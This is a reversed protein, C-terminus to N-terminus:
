GNLTTTLEGLDEPHIFYEDSDDKEVTFETNEVRIFEEDLCGDSEDLEKGNIEYVRGSNLDLKAPFTKEEGDWISVFEVKVTAM